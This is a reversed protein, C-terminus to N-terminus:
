QPPVRQMMSVLQLVDILRIKNDSKKATSKARPAFTSMTVIMALSTPDLTQAAGLAMLVVHENVQHLLGYAKCWVYTDRGDAAICHLDSPQGGQLRKVRFYGNAKLMLAVADEFERRSLSLLGEVTELLAINVDRIYLRVRSQSRATDKAAPLSLGIARLLGDRAVKYDNTADYRRRQAWLPPILAEDCPTMVLPIVGRMRGGNVQHLAANVEDQVWRSVLSAPTMVLVLWPRGALGENIKQVFSGYAIGQYDVWVDAGIAQLDAVLRWTFADEDPSNHHSV